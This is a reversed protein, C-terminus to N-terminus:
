RRWKKTPSTTTLRVDRNGSEDAVWSLLLRALKETSSRALLLDHVDIFTSHVERGLEVGANLATSSDKLMELLNERDIFKIQCAETTTITVPSPRSSVVASL